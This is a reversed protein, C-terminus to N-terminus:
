FPIMLFIKNLYFKLLNLVFKPVRLKKGHLTTCRAMGALWTMKCKAM